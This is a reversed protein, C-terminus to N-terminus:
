ARGGPNTVDRIGDGALNIAIVVAFITLGPIMVLHPKLFMLTRGDAIMSGWSPIPPPVGLGVFSLAAEILILTAVELTVLVIIQNILNPLLERLIIHLDSAGAARAALVFERERMQQALSRSVLAYRDWTLLGLVAILVPVSATVLSILALAVLIIPLALKVNILYVAVADVRGGYYGGVLGLLTGITAAIASAVFSITLSIRGGYILRSLVDRGLRDTGFPHAWTGGVEWVPNALRKAIDQHYPGAPVIYPAFLAVLIVLVVMTGGILLGGHRCARHLMLRRPTLLPAETEEAAIRTDARAAVAIPGEAQTM